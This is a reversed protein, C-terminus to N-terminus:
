LRLRVNCEVGSPNREFLLCCNPPVLRHFVRAQADTWEVCVDEPQKVQSLARSDPGVVRGVARNKNAAIIEIEVRAGADIIGVFANSSGVRRAQDYQVFSSSSRIARSLSCM